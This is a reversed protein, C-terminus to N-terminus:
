ESLSNGIGFSINKKSVTIQMSKNRAINKAEFIRRFNKVDEETMHNVDINKIDAMSFDRLNNPTNFTNAPANQVTPYTNQIGGYSNSDTIVSIYTILILLILNRYKILKDSKDM